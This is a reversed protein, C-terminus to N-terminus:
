NNRNSYTVTVLLQDWNAEWIPSITSLNEVYAHVPHKCYHSYKFEILLPDLEGMRFGTEFLSGLSIPNFYVKQDPVIDVDIGGAIFFHPMWKHPMQFELDMFMETYYSHDPHSKYNYEWMTLSADPLFGLKFMFTIILIKSM